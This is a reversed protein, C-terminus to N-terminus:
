SPYIPAQDFQAFKRQSKEASFHYRMQGNAHAHGLFATGTILQLEVNQPAEGQEVCNSRCFRLFWRWDRTTSHHRSINTGFM